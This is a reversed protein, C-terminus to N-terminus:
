GGKRAEGVVGIDREIVFDNNVDVDVSINIKMRRGLGLGEEVAESVAEVGIALSLVLALVDQCGDRAKRFVDSDLGFGSFGFKLVIPM